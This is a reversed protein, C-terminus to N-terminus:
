HMTHIPPDSSNTTWELTTAVRATNHDRKRQGNVLRVGTIVQPLSLPATYGIFHFASHENGIGATTSVGAGTFAVCHNATAILQAIKKSSEALSADSDHYEATRNAEKIMRKEDESLILTANKMNRVRTNKLVNEWCHKHFSAEGQRGWSVQFKVTKKTKSLPLSTKVEVFSDSSVIDGECITLSCKRGSSAVKKTKPGKTANSERKRSTSAEAM